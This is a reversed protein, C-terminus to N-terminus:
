GDEIKNVGSTYEFDRGLARLAPGLIDAGM